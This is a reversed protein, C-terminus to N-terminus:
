GMEELIEKLKQKRKIKDERQQSDEFYGLSYRVYNTGYIAEIWHFYKEFEEDEMKIVESICDM